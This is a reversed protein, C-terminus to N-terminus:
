INKLLYPNLECNVSPHLFQEINEVGRDKLIEGLAQEPNTTYTNRLKYKM